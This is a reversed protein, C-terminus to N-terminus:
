CCVWGGATCSCVRDGYACNSYTAGLTPESAYTCVAGAAPPSQPCPDLSAGSCTWAGGGCSCSGDIGYDCTLSGTCSGGTGSTFPPLSPCGPTGCKPGGADPASVGSTLHWADATCDARVNQGGVGGYWCPTYDNTCCGDTLCPSGEAPPTAPCANYGGACGLGPCSWVGQTCTCGLCHYGCSLGEQTCSGSPASAPCGVPNGSDGVPSGSDRVPNGSDTGPGGGDAPCTIAPCGGAVCFGVGGCDTCYNPSSAPCIGADAPATTADSGGDYGAPCGYGPCAESCFGAGGCSNCHVQGTPCGATAASTSGGCALSALLALIVAMRWSCVRARLVPPSM